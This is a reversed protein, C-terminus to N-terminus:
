GKFYDLAKKRLTVEARASRELNRVIELQGATLDPRMGIVVLNGVERRADALKTQLEPLTPM